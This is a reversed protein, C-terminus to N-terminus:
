MLSNINGGLQLKAGNKAFSVQKGYLYDELLTHEKKDVPSIFKLARNNISVRKYDGTNPDFLL